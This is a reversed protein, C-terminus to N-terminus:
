LKPCGTTEYDYFINWFLAFVCGIVAVALGVWAVTDEYKCHNLNKLIRTGLTCGMIFGAFHGTYSVNSGSDSNYRTYLSISLDMTVLVGLVTARVWRFPMESWNLFVDAVHAGVLAYVGASAGVLNTEPDFVSSALSGALGGMLYVGATRWQGHVMELPIGVILQILVNFLIHSVGAHVLMYTIFRWVQDRCGPRYALESSFSLPCELNVKAGCERNSYHIFFAIEIISFILMFVPPPWLQYQTLYSQSQADNKKVYATAVLRVLSNAYRTSEGRSNTTYVVTEVFEQFNVQGDRDTDMSLLVEDVSTGPRTNSFSVKAMAKGLEDRSIRGSGDTDFERFVAKLEELEEDSLNAPRNKLELNAM